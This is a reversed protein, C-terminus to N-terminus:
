KPSPGNEMGGPWGVSWKGVDAGEMSISSGQECTCSAWGGGAEAPHARNGAARGGRARAHADSLGGGRSRWMAKGVRGRKGKRKGRQKSLSATVRGEEAGEEVVHCWGLHVVGGGERHCPVENTQRAWPIWWRSRCIRLWWRRSDVGGTLDVQTAV